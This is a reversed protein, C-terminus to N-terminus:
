YLYPILKYTSEMYVRYEEGFKTLLITEEQKMRERFIMLFIVTHISLVILSRFALELGITIILGGAYIPHRIIKYMGDTLLTQEKEESLSGGGYSHKNLQYRSSLMIISGLIMGLVGIYGVFPNNYIPLYNSIILYNEYFALLLILPGLLFFLLLVLFYKDKLENPDSMPRILIDILNIGFFIVIVLILFPDQLLDSGFLNFWILYYVPFFALFHILKRVYDRIIEKM